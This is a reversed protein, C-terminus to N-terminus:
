HDLFNYLIKLHTSSFTLKILISSNYLVSYSTYSKSTSKVCLKASSTPTNTCLETLINSSPVLTFDTPFSIESLKPPAIYLAVNLTSM